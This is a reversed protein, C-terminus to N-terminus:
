LGQVKAAPSPPSLWWLPTATFCRGSWYGTLSLRYIRDKICVRVKHGYGRGFTFRGRTLAAGRCSCRLAGAAAEQLSLCLGGLKTERLLM